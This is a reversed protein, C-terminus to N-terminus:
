GGGCGGGSNQLADFHPGGTDVRSSCASMLKGTNRSGCRPCAVADKQSFVLEEFERGCEKCTYEYIPM